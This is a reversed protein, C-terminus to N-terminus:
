KSLKKNRLAQNIREKLKDSVPVMPLRVFNRVVGMQELVEKIGSPNGEEYMLPNIDIFDLQYSGAKKFNGNLAAQTMKSFLSPFANALVSIVGVAGVSMLPVTLMDDGCIVKFSDPTDALIKIAQEVNGSAEKIAIINNHNALRITTAASMNLGTRGPVNYLIVPAHSHDAVESFHRFIGEQSPKNYYPCVSMIATVPVDRVDHIRQVVESTNNGGVGYVVPLAKKNNELVFDLVSRKESDTLTASEGTTGMVVYYDAKSTHQLLKKLSAFDIKGKADFPTVLAVGTGTFRFM